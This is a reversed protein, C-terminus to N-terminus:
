KKNKIIKKDNLKTIFKKIRPSSNTSDIIEKNTNYFEISNRSSITTSKDIGSIPILFEVAKTIERPYIKVNNEGKSYCKVLQSVVTRLKYKLKTLSDNNSSNKIIKQFTENSLLELVSIDDVSGFINSITEESLELDKFLSQLIEQVNEIPSTYENNRFDISLTPDANKIDDYFNEIDIAGPRKDNNLLFNSSTISKLLHRVNNLQNRSNVIERIYNISHEVFDIDPNSNINRLLGQFRNSFEVISLDTRFKNIFKNIDVEKEKLVEFVETVMSGTPNSPEPYFFRVLNYALLTKEAVLTKLDGPAFGDKSTQLASTLPNGYVINGVVNGVVPVAKLTGTFFTGAKIFFKVTQENRKM